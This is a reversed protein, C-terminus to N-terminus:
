LNVRILQGPDPQVRFSARRNFLRALPPPLRAPLQLPRSFKLGYVRGRAAEVRHCVLCEVALPENLYRSQMELHVTAGLAFVSESRSEFLVAVGDISIDQVQGPVPKKGARAVSVALEDKRM